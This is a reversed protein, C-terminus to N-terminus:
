LLPAHSENLLQHIITNTRQELESVDARTMYMPMEGLSRMAEVFEKFMPERAMNREQEPGIWNNYANMEMTTALAYQGGPGWIPQSFQQGLNTGNYTNDSVLSCVGNKFEYLGDKPMCPLSTRKASVIINWSMSPDLHPLFSKRVFCELGDPLISQGFALDTLLGKADHEGLFAPQDPDYSHRVAAVRAKQTDVWIHDNLRFQRLCETKVYAPMEVLGIFGTGTNTRCFVRGSPLSQFQIGLFQQPHMKTNYWQRLKQYFEHM